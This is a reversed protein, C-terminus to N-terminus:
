MSFNSIFANKPLKISFTVEKSNDENNRVDSSIHVVSYRSTITSTVLYREITTAQKVARRTRILRELANQACFLEQFHGHWVVWVSGSASLQSKIPLM